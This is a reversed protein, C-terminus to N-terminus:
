VQGRLVYVGNLAVAQRRATDLDHPEGKAGTPPPGKAQVTALGMRFKLAGMAVRPNYKTHALSSEPAVQVADMLKVTTAAATGGEAVARVM